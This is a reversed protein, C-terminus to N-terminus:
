REIETFVRKRGIVMFHHSIGIVAPEHEVLRILDLIRKRKAPDKWRDELGPALWGPGEVALLDEIVFGADSVERQLEEPRHFFATTFFDPMNRPNRHRGSEIDAKILDLFYKDDILGKSIGDYLSAFRNIGACFVLGEEKLVRHSERLATIRDDRSTLHYLPGMLLLADVSGGDWDLSRADGVTASAIPRPSKKDTHRAAQKVHKLVPDILHVQHGKGALWQAYKGPGGGVDLILTPPRPLWRTLIEQSRAFEVLGQDRSLRDGEEFTEYHALVEKPLPRIKRPM